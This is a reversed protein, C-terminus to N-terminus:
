PKVLSAPLIVMYSGFGRLAAGSGVIIRGDASIDSIEGTNVWTAFANPIGNARLYDKLYFPQKDIWIIANSDQSGAVGQGGGIVRGDDSTAQAEVLILPGPSPRRQPAPLCVTGDQATWVWASQDEPIQGPRCNDGVVISGDNNAGRATGVYGLPYDRPSPILEEPGDVWRAGARFGDAREQYGTIVRANGSIGNAFSVRDPVLSGLDVM